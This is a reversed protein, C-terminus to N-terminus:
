FKDVYNSLLIPPKERTSLGTAPRYRKGNRLLVPKLEVTDSNKLKELPVHIWGHELRTVNENRRDRCTSCSNYYPIKTHLISLSPLFNTSHNYVSKANWVREFAVGDTNSSKLSWIRSIIPDKDGRENRTPM